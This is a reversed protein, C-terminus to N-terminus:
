EQDYIKLKRPRMFEKIVESTVKKRNEQHEAVIKQLVAICEKKLEGSMM